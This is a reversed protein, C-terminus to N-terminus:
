EEPPAALALFDLYTRAGAADTPRLALHADLEARASQLSTYLKRAAGAFALARDRAANHDEGRGEIDAQLASEMNHSYRDLERRYDRSAANHNDRLRWLEPRNDFAYRAWELDDTFLNVLEEFTPRTVSTVRVIPGTGRKLQVRWGYEGATLVRTPGLYDSLEYGRLAVAQRITDIRGQRLTGVTRTRSRYV